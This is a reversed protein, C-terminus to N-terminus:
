TLSVDQFIYEDDEVSAGGDDGRYGSPTLPFEPQEYFYSQSSYGRSTTSQRRKWFIASIFAAIVVLGLILPASSSAKEVDTGKMDIGQNMKQDDEAIYHTFDQMDVLVKLFECHPGTFEPPCICEGDSKFQAQVLNNVCTGGNTCFSTGHLNCYETAPQRCMAGAFSNVGDAFKCNCKWEKEDSAVDVERCLGGHRCVHSDELCPELSYTPESCTLGTFGLPCICVERLSGDVPTTAIDLSPGFPFISCFGGNACNLSCIITSM